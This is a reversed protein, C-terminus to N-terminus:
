SGLGLVYGWGLFCGGVCMACFVASFLAAAAIAQNTSEKM